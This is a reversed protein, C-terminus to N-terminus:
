GPPSRRPLYPETRYTEITNGLEGINEISVVVRDGHKLFVKPSRFVGVGDPTGTAIVDGPELVIAQSIFAILQKVTFIMEKTTSDQLVAGNVLCRIKLDNPDGIEDATVLLPGMPCFTNLSKGRVWQKDGFQLNRASVDNLATYGAVVDLADAEAVADARRGIVVALEAEYDVEQSLDENWRIKGEPGIIASPFKTFLLPLSPPEVKQERCHDMYNLGVAVIKSPHRVPADLTVDQLNVLARENLKGGAPGALSLCRQAVLRVSNWSRLGDDLTPPFPSLPDLGLDRPVARAAAPIDVCETSSIMVGFSRSTNRIYSAFKV